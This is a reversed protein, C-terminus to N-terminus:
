IVGLAPGLAAIAPSQATVDDAFHDVVRDARHSNFADLWEQTIAAAIKPDVPSM